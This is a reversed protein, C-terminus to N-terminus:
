MCPEFIFNGNIFNYNGIHIVNYEHNSCNNNVKYDGDDSSLIINISTIKGVNHNYYIWKGNYVKNKTTFIGISFKNDKWIGDYKNGNKFTMIGKGHIKDNKFEGTYVNGNKM